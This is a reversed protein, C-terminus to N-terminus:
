LLGANSGSRDANSSTCAEVETTGVDIQQEWQLEQLNLQLQRLKAIALPLAVGVAKDRQQKDTGLEKDLIVLSAKTAAISDGIGTLRTNIDALELNGVGFYKDFHYGLLSPM